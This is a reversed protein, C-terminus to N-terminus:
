RAARARARENAMVREAYDYSEAAGEEMGTAIVVDRVEKSVHLSTIRMRTHSDDLATFVTTVVAPFQNYPAVDFVETYVIRELPVIEKHEGCFPVEKGDAMRGVFRYTGGVRLDLECVIMTLRSNGWWQKIHEPKTFVEWVLERPADFDRLFQIERDSPLTVALKNKQASM